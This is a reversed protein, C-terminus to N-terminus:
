VLRREIFERVLNLGAFCINIMVLIM